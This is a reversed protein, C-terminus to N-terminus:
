GRRLLEYFINFRLYFFQFVVSFVASLLEGGNKMDGGVFLLGGDLTKM